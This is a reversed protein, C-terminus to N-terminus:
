ASIWSTGNRLLGANYSTSM